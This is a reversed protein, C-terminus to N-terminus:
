IFFIRRCDSTYDGYIKGNLSLRTMLQKIKGLAHRDPRNKRGVVPQISTKIPEALGGVIMDMSEPHSSSLSM